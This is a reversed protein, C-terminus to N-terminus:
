HGFSLMRWPFQKVVKSSGKPWNKRWYELNMELKWGSIELRLGCVNLMGWYDEANATGAWQYLTCGSGMRLERHHLDSSVTTTLLFLPACLNPRRLWQQEYQSILLFDLFRKAECQLFVVYIDSFRQKWWWFKFRHLSYWLATTNKRKIQKSINDNIPGGEPSSSKEQANWM